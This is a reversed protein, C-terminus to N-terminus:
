VINLCLFDKGHAQALALRTYGLICLVQHRGEQETSRDALEAVSVLQRTIADVHTSRRQGIARTRLGPLCLRAIGEICISCHVTHNFSDYLYLLSM